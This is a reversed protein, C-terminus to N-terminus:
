KHVVHTRHCSLRRTCRPRARFPRERLPGEVRDSGSGIQVVGENRHKKGFVCTKAGCSPPNSRVASNIVVNAQQNWFDPTPQIWVLAIRFLHDHPALQLLDFVELKLSLYYQCTPKAVADGFAENVGIKTSDKVIWCSNECFLQKSWLRLATSNKRISHVIYDFGLLDCGAGVKLVATDLVCTRRQLCDQVDHGVTMKFTLVD